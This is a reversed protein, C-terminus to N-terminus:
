NGGLVKCSKEVSRKGNTVRFASYTQATKTNLARIYISDNKAVRARSLSPSIAKLEASSDDNFQLYSADKGQNVGYIVQFDGCDAVPETSPNASAFSGISLALALLVTKM